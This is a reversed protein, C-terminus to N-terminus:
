SFLKKCKQYVRDWKEIKEPMYMEVPFSSAILSRGEELSAPFGSVVGQVMINGLAAAEAPGAKVHLNAANATFQNLMRNQSGGGVIHLVGIKKKTLSQILELIYRYKFALSEFICRVMEPKSRPEPQGTHQCYARIAAPMDSPNLFSPHNPDIICKFPKAEEAMNVLDDYSCKKGEDNWQQRCKQLLWLGMINRLLRIKGGIGGENTFGYKLSLDSIVPEEVEMGLLSWTGSSLYAWHPTLAPVAAVASATDHNGVTVVQINTLGTERELEPTIAGIKQGPQIVPAM